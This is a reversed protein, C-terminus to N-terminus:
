YFKRELIEVISNRDYFSLQTSHSNPDTTLLTLILDSVGLGGCDGVLLLVKGM